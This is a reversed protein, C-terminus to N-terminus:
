RRVQLTLALAPWENYGARMLFYRTLTYSQSLIMFFM